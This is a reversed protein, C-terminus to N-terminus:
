NAGRTRTRHNRQAQTRKGNGKDGGSSPAIVIERAVLEGSPLKTGFVSVREGAKLHSRDVSETGHEIKTKTTLAVTILGATAKIEIKDGSVARIVGETAKGKHKSPDHGIASPMALGAFFLITLLRTM